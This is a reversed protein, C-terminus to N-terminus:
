PGSPWARARARPDAPTGPRAPRGTRGNRKGGEAGGRRVLAIAALILALGLLANVGPREGLLLVGGLVANVPILYNSLAAFTAGASALLAFFMLAGVATSAVGLAVVAGVGAGSPTLNWPQDFLLSVPLILLAAAIISGTATVEPALRAFRVSYVATGAYSIAALIAALQAAIDSGLGAVAGPGVLVVLGVLGVAIALLKNRTLREDSTFHHAFLVTFLPMMGILIAALGSDIRIEAWSILTFPVVNGTIGIVLMPRWAGLRAPLRDGRAYVYATLLAAAIVLRAAVVTFPPVTVVAVKIFVFSAGWIASLAFLLFLDRTSAAM